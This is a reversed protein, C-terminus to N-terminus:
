EKVFKKVISGNLSKMQLFYMGPRLGSIDIVADEGKRKLIGSISSEQGLLSMISLTTAENRLCSAHVTIQNTAPNPFINISNNNPVIDEKSTLIGSLSLKWVGNGMTGAYLNTGCITLSLIRNNTLGSSVPAWYNGNDTSLYVGEDTGAFINTGSVAFTYIANPTFDNSKNM